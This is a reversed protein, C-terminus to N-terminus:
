MQAGPLIRVQLRKIRLASLLTEALIIMDSIAQWSLPNTIKGVSSTRHQRPLDYVDLSM